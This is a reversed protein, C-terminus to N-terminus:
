PIIPIHTCWHWGKNSFLPKQTITRVRGIRRSTMLGSKEYTQFSEREGVLQEKKDFYQLGFYDNEDLSIHSFVDRLLQDGTAKKQYCFLIVSLHSTLKAKIKSDNDGWNVRKRVAVDVSVISGDLGEIQCPLIESM